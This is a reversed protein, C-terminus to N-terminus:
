FRATTAHAGPLGRPFLINVYYGVFGGIVVAVVVVGGLEMMGLNMTGMDGMVTGKLTPAQNKSKEQDKQKKDKKGKKDSKKDSKKDKDEKGEEEKEEKEEAPIYTRDGPRTGPSAVPAPEIVNGSLPEGNEDEGKLLNQIKNKNKQEMSPKPPGPPAPHCPVGAPAESCLPVQILSELSTGAQSLQRHPGSKIEEVIGSSSLLATLDKLHFANHPTLHSYVMFIFMVVTYVRLSYGSM